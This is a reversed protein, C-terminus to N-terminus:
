ERGAAELLDAAAGPSMCMDGNPLFYPKNDQRLYETKAQCGSMCGAAFLLLGLPLLMWMRREWKRALRRLWKM